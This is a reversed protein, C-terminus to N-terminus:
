CIEQVTIRTDGSFCVQVALERQSLPAASPSRRAAISAWCRRGRAGTGASRVTIQKHEGQLDSHATLMKEALHKPTYTEPATFRPSAALQMEVPPGCELCFQALPPNEQRCKPCQM